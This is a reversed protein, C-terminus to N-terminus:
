CHPSAPDWKDRPIRSAASHVWPDRTRARPQLAPACTGLVDFEEFSAFIVRGDKHHTAAPADLNLSFRVSHPQECASKVLMGAGAYKYEALSWYAHYGHEKCFRAVLDAENALANTARSFKGHQRPLGDNKKCGTPGLAPSRVDSIFIVDPSHARLMSEFPARDNQIRNVLSNANWTVLSKVHRTPGAVAPPEDERPRKSSTPAGDTRKFFSTISM